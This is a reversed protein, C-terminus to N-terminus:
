LRIPALYRSSVLSAHKPSSLKVVHIEFVEKGGILNRLMPAIEDIVGNLTKELFRKIEDTRDDNVVVVLDIDRGVTEAREGGSLDILYVDIVRGTLMSKICKAAAEALLRKARSWEMLSIYDREDIKKVKVSAVANALERRCVM